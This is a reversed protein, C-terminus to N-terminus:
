PQTTLNPAACLNIVRGSSDIECAPMTPKDCATGRHTLPCNCEGTLANCNGHNECSSPCAMREVAEPAEESGESELGAQHMLISPIAARTVNNAMAATHSLAMNARRTPAPLMEFTSTDLRVANLTKTFEHKRSLAFRGGQKTPKLRVHRPKKILWSGSALLLALAVMALSVSLVRMDRRRREHRADWCRVPRDVTAVLCATHELAKAPARHPTGARPREWAATREGMTVPSSVLTWFSGLVM